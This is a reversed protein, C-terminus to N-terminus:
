LLDIFKSISLIPPRMNHQKNCEDVKEKYKKELLAYEAKLADHAKTIKDYQSKLTVNQVTLKYITSKKEKCCDNEPLQEVQAVLVPEIATIESTTEM